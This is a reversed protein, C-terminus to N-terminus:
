EFSKRRFFKHYQVLDKYDDFEYWNEKTKICKIQFNKIILHNLFTTLHTDKKNKLIEYNKLVKKRLNRPIYVLGMYQYKVSNLNKIKTGIELLESRKNIKLNEADKYPNKKRIKWIKKWNSKIPLVIKKQRSQIIKAVIKKSFIIDSYCFLLDTNFKKLALYFSHLMEKRFFDKNHLFGVNKQNKLEKKIKQAQFGTVIIVKTKKSVNKLENVARRILSVEDIKILCKIKRVKNFLRQSKGAALIIFKM